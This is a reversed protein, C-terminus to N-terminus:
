VSQAPENLVDWDILEGHVGAYGAVDRIRNEIIPQLAAPDNESSGCMM